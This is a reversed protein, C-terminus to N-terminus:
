ANYIKNIQIKPPYSEFNKTNQRKYKEYWTLSNM